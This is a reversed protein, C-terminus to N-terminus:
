KLYYKLKIFYVLGGLILIFVLSFISKFTIATGKFKNFLKENEFSEKTRFFSISIWGIIISIITSGLLFFLFTQSFVGLLMACIVQAVLIIKNM